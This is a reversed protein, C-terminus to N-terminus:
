KNKLQEQVIAIIKEETLAEGKGQQEAIWEKKKQSVAEKVINEILNVLDNEKIKVVKPQTNKDM